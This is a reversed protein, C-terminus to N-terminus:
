FTAKGVVAPLLMVDGRTLLYSAGGHEVHGSGETCVLVGPLGRAGVAFPRQGRLRWLCFHQCEFLKERNVPLTSETVVIVPRVPGQAFNTCAIAEDVQLARPQGTRPDVHDWDYLRFTVDSNQQVEFV